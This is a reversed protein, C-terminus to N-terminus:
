RWLREGRRWRRLLLILDKLILAVSWVWLIDMYINRRYGYFTYLIPLGIAIPWKFYYFFLIGAGWLHRLERKLSDRM